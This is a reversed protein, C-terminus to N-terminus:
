NLINITNQGSVSCGEILLGVDVDVDVDVLVVIAGETGKNVVSDGFVVEVNMLVTGNQGVCAVLLVVM